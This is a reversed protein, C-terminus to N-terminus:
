AYELFERKAEIEVFKMKEKDFFLNIKGTPGNRHKSIYVETMGKNESDPDYYDERYMM